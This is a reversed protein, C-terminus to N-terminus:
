EGKHSYEDAQAKAADNALQHVRAAWDANDMKVFDQHSKALGKINKLDAQKYVSRVVEGDSRVTEFLTTAGAGRDLRVTVKWFTREM